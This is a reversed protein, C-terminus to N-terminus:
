GAAQFDLVMEVRSPWLMALAHLKIKSGSECVAAMAKYPDVMKAPSPLMVAAQPTMVWLAEIPREAIVIVKDGTPSASFGKIIEADPTRLQERVADLCPHFAYRYGLKAFAVLYGARLESLRALQPHYGRAPGLSFPMRDWTGQKDAEGLQERYKRVAGPDNHKESCALSM